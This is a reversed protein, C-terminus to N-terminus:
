PWSSRSPRRPRGGLGDYRYVYAQGTSQNATPAGVVAVGGRVSASAGYVDGKVGSELRHDETRGCQASAASAGWSLALLLTTISSIATSSRLM